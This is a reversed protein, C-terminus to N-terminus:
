SFGATRRRTCSARRSCLIRRARDRGTVTGGLYWTGVYALNHLAVDFLSTDIDREVGTARAEVLGALLGMAATTGTMLDIISLGFRAPPSDPEGTISLYGAEAQM